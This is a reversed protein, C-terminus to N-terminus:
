AALGHVPAPSVPPAPGTAHHPPVAEHRARADALVNEVRGTVIGCLRHCVRAAEMSMSPTFMLVADVADLTDELGLTFDPM